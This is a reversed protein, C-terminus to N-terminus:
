FNFSPTNWFFTLNYFPLHFNFSSNFSLRILLCWQPFWWNRIKHLQWGCDMVQSYTPLQCKSFNYLFTCNEPKFWSFGSCSYSWAFLFSRSHTLWPQATAPDRMHESTTPQPERSRYARGLPVPSSSWPQPHAPATDKFSADIWFTLDKITATLSKPMM